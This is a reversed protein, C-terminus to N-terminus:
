AGEGGPGAAGDRGEQPFPVGEALAREIFRSANRIEVEVLDGINSVVITFPGSSYVDSEAPWRRLRLILTDTDPYYDFSQSM